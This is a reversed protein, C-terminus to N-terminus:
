VIRSDIESQKIANANTLACLENEFFMIQGNRNRVAEGYLLYGPKENNVYAIFGTQGTLEHIAPDIKIWYNHGKHSFEREM